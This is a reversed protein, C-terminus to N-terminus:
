SAMDRTPYGCSFLRRAIKEQSRLVGDERTHQGGKYVEGDWGKMENKTRYM